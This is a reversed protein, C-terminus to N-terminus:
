PERQCHDTFDYYEPASYNLCSSIKFHVGDEDALSEILEVTPELQDLTREDMSIYTIDFWGKEKTHAMFDTLFPTWIAEWDENGPTYAKKVTSNSAVDFYSVYNGWPVVSYCKIQGLGTEPDIVGCEIAFEVWIDFWTYDFTWTGDANKTWKIM